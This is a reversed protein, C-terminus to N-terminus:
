TEKVYKNCEFDVTNDHQNNTRDGFRWTIGYGDKMLDEPKVGQPWNSEPFHVSIKERKDRTVEGIFVADQVVLVVANYSQNACAGTLVTVTEGHVDVM